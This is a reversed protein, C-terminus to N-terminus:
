DWEYEVTGRIEGNSKGEKDKTVNGEVRGSFTGHDSDREYHVEARGTTNGDRDRSGSISGGGRCLLIARDIEYVFPYQEFFSSSAGITPYELFDAFQYNQIMDERTVTTPLQQAVLKGMQMLVFQPEQLSFKSIVLSNGELYFYSYDQQLRECFDYIVAESSIEHLCIIDPNAHLIQDTVEQFIAPNEPQKLIFDFVAYATSRPYVLAELSIPLILIVQALIIALFKM